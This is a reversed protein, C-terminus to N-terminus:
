MELRSLIDSVANALAPTKAINKAHNYRNIVQQMQLVIKEKTSAPDQPGNTRIQFGFREDIGDFDPDDDPIVLHLTITFLRDQSEVVGNVTIAPDHLAM